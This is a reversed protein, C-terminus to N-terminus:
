HSITARSRGDTFTRRAEARVAQAEHPNGFSSWLRAALTYSEPTPMVRLMDAIAGAAAERRGTAHYLTALAARARTNQPYKVLASRFAEEAEPHRNLRALTDGTFYYLEFIPTVGPKVGAVAKEFLPLADDFRGQDYLLRGEVFAPMPSAPDTQAALAAEGRAEEPDRRALAIRVLLEHAAARSRNDGDALIAVAETARARAEELRREKLLVDAAGLYGDAVSPDLEIIHHYADLAVDYRNLLLATDALSNWVEAAEPADDVVRQFVGIAESWKRASVLEQAERYRELIEIKDKPDAATAGSASHATEDLIIAGALRELKRALAERTRALEDARDDVKDPNLAALNTLQKPDRTLDYLEERPASIYRYRGDFLGTLPSWGFHYYAYLAEAYMPQKPLTGTEELIPKLSRGHLNDPV